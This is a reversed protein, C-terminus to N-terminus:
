SSCAKYVLKAKEEEGKEKNNLQFLSDQICFEM